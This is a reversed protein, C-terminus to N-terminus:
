RGNGERNFRSFRKFITLLAAGNIPNLAAIHTASRYVCVM